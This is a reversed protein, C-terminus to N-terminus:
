TLCKCFFLAKSAERIWAAELLISKSVHLRPVRTKSLRRPGCSLKQLYSTTAYLWDFCFFAPRLGSLKM